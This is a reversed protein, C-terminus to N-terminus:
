FFDLSTLGSVNRTVPAKELQLQIRVNRLTDNKESNSCPFERITKEFSAYTERSVETLNHIMGGTTFYYEEFPTPCSCGSSCAFYIARSEIAQVVLLTNFEYSLAPEDLTALVELGSLEPNYYINNM